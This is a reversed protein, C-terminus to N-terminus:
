IAISYSEVTKFSENDCILYEIVADDIDNKDRSAILSSSYFNTISNQVGCAKFKSKKMEEKQKKSAANEEIKKKLNFAEETGVHKNSIHDRINSTNSGPCAFDKHYLKCKARDNGVRDAFEWVPSEFKRKRNELGVPVLTITIM